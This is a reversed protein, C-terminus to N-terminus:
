ECGAPTCAFTANNEYDYSANPDMVYVTSPDNPLYDTGAEGFDCDDSEFDGEALFVGGGNLGATNGFLGFFGKSAKCSATAGLEILLGGGYFEAENGYIASDIMDLKAPRTIGSSTDTDYSFMSMGGGMVDSKNGYVLTDTLTVTGGFNCIGGGIVDTENELIQSETLNFHCGETYIGGGGNDATNDSIISDNIDVTNLGQCHIGGGAYEMFDSTDKTAQGGELTLGSATVDLENGIITLVSGRSAGSIVTQTADGVGILDLSYSTTINAYHTGKCFYLTEEGITTYSVPKSPSGADFTATRDQRGGSRDESLVMGDERTSTDCDNDLGDCMEVGGPKALATTDDCDNNNTVFRDNGTSPDGCDQTPDAFSDGYGDKDADPYYTNVTTMDLSDDFLNVKDDCDEDIDALDCVEQADPNITDKSDDCDGATESFGEPLECAIQATSEV